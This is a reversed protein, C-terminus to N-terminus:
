RQNRRCAGCLRIGGLWACPAAAAGVRWRRDVPCFRCREQISGGTTLHPLLSGVQPKTLRIAWPRFWRRRAHSRAPSRRAEPPDRAGGRAGNRRANRRGTGTRSERARRDDLRLAVDIDRHHEILLHRPREVHGPLDQLVSIIQQQLRPVVDLRPRQFFAAEVVRQGMRVRLDAAGHKAVPPADSRRQRPM